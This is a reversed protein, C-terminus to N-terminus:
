EYRLAQTPEIRSARLAPIYGACLAVITLVIASLAVVMPDNGKLEFLLSRAARGIAIAAAVGVVGGIVTMTGVQKLVMARVRGADAGLAMRVGIERTRQAVSYALVGYLGVAALLTALLAFAASLSSIMRDLFVNDKVQQPMTKLNEVPLNPDLKKIVGPISRLLQEAGGARASRVYFTLFGATTDQRVPAFFQPPIEDKVESYKADRVLGVIQIDLSDNGRDGMLKGVADRGLGFKKAFAENVVAVRARGAEDARTFERGSLLQVGLVNFYGAGVENFRSNADTDPGKKFGEVSVDTGWNSGSLVPILAETVGSVGPIAALEEHVRDFLARSRANDYGNLSPSISFTVMDEVRLGLDVESVNRLSKIFLGASILLAMSLAIQATVLTTRFRAASRTGSHKGTGDRIASALDPRTSNLAPFLGFLIGTGLSLLATFVIASTQLHVNLSTATDNPLLSTVLALTWYAVVVGVVGGIVALLVSETLLQTILQRRSAGLSLRVAMELSRGAGRALLLNAINACAILLVISTIGFLLILPTRSDSHVSSQGRRGDTVVLDKTRFRKMTQDSMGEQLPAEVDNIIPHYIGNIASSAQKLSVGPKLRAFLYVWYARRNEFGANQYYPEMVGRMTIPVFVEPRSGLTTGDFGRPAVGIITMTQGNIIIPEGLVSTRAGLRSQWYDYSLVAVYNAGVNRDDAPTFLRGLAPKLGLVPFYSGSVLMGQGSFTQDDFAVNAGFARHAAIGTFPLNAARELDRFMPYSFVEECDGAQNCSTSGPKPSPASLNVLREPHAVPLPQLLLQNFLSFIAANAGIGLALSLIAVLTVFPSKILTRFALKLNPM